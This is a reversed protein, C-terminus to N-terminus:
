RFLVTANRSKPPMAPAEMDYIQVTMAFSTISMIVWCAPVEPWSMVGSSHSTAPVVATSNTMIHSFVSEAFFSRMPKRTVLFERTCSRIAFVIVMCYSCSSSGSMSSRRWFAFRATSPSHIPMPASMDFMHDVATCSTATIVATPIIKVNLPQSTSIIAPSDNM